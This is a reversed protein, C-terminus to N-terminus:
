KKREEKREERRGEKGLSAEQGRQGVQVREDKLAATRALVVDSCIYDCSLDVMQQLVDPVVAVLRFIEEACKPKCCCCTVILINPNVLEECM